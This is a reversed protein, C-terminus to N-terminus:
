GWKYATTTIPPFFYLNCVRTDVERYKMTYYSFPITLIPQLSYYALPTSFCLYQITITNYVLHKTVNKSIRTGTYVPNGFGPRKAAGHFNEPSPLTECRGTVMWSVFVICGCSLWYWKCLPSIFFFSLLLLRLCHSLFVWSPNHKQKSQHLSHQTNPASIRLGNKVSKGTKQCRMVSAHSVLFLILTPINHTYCHHLM